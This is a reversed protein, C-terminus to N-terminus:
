QFYASAHSSIASKEAKAADVAARLKKAAETPDPQGCIASVVAIGNVGARLVDQAHRPKIGGIAVSPVPSAAAIQALRELGLAAGADKKTQTGYVPGIGIYDVTGAPISAIESLRNISLGLLADPGILRRADAAPLDKQGVHLGDAGAALMVDADDDIILPAGMPRLAELLKRACATKRGKKWAPARLQVVTAGGQVAEVATRVMGDFGCPGGDGCLDPDLVLYLSLDLLHTM